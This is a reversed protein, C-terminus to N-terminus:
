TKFCFWKFKVLFYGTDQDAFIWQQKFHSKFLLCDFYKHKIWKKSKNINERQAYRWSKFFMWQDLNRLFTKSFQAKFFFWAWKRIIPNLRLIVTLTSKGRLFRWEEKFISLIFFHFHRTPQIFVWFHPKFVAFYQKFNWYWFSFGELSSFIHQYSFFSFCDGWKAVRQVEQFSYCFFCFSFNWSYFFAWDVFQQFLYFSLDLAWFLM